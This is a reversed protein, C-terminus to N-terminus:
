LECAFRLMQELLLFTWQPLLKPKDSSCILAQDKCQERHLSIHHGILSAQQKNASCHLELALWHKEIRCPAAAERSM